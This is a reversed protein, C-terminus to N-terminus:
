DENRFEKWEQRVRGPSVGLLAAWQPSDFGRFRRDIRCIARMKEVLNLNDQRAITLIMQFEKGLMVEVAAASVPNRGQRRKPENAPPSEAVARAATAEPSSASLERLEDVVVSPNPPVATASAMSTEAEWQIEALLRQWESLEEAKFRRKIAAFHRRVIGPDLVDPPPDIPCGNQEVHRKIQLWDESGFENPNAAEIVAMQICGTLRRVARLAVEHASPGYMDGFEFPGRLRRAERLRAAVAEVATKAHPYYAVMTELAECAREANGVEPLDPRLFVWAWLAGRHIVGITWESALRLDTPLADTFGPVYVPPSLPDLM